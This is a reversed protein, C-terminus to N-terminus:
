FGKRILKLATETLSYCEKRVLELTTQFGSGPDFSLEVANILMLEDVDLKKDSVKVLRNPRWVRGSNVETWGEVTYSIMLSKAMRINAEYLSRRVCDEITQATDSLLILPRYRNNLQRDEVKKRNTYSGAKEKQVWEQVSEVNYLKDPPMEAKTVYNSFRDKLSSSMSASIINSSTLIDSSIDTVNPQTLFLNGYSDTLVLVGLKVCEEVILEAISRGQDITYNDLTTNLLSIVSPDIMSNIKFPLVLTRIINAITQYKLESVDENYYCCDVLDSTRDRMSFDINSGNGDYDIRIEDIYGTSIREKDIFAIYESGKSLKWEGSAKFLALESEFFNLTSLNIEQCINEMSSRINIKEWCDRYAFGNATIMFINESM